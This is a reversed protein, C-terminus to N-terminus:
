TKTMEDSNPGSILSISTIFEAKSPSTKCELLNLATRLYESVTVSDPGPCLTMTLLFTSGAVSQPFTPNAMLTM